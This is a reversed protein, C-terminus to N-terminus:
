KSGVVKGLNNAKPKNAYTKGGASIVKKKFTIPNIGSYGRIKNNITTGTATTATIQTNTNNASSTLTALTPAAKGKQFSLIYHDDEADRYAGVIKGPLKSNGGLGSITVFKDYNPGLFVNVNNKKVTILDLSGDENIDGSAKVVRGAQKPLAVIPGEKILTMNTTYSNVRVGGKVKLALYNTRNLLSQSALVKQRKSLNTNKSPTLTATNSTLITVKTKKQMVVDPTRDGDYDGNVPITGFVLVRNAGNDAVFLRGYKDYHLGLPDAISSANTGLNFPTSSIFNTQGVVFDASAGNNTPISNYVMVRANIRDVIALQGQKSVDISPIIAFQDATTGALTVGFTTQGIVLDAPTQNQTPVSNFILVRNGLYESVLLKGDPTLAIDSPYTMENANNGPTATLFNPQGLVLNAPAGNATPISNYILVRHNSADAILLKGDPM